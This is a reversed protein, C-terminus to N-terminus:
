ESEVVVVRAEVALDHERFVELRAGINWSLESHMGAFSPAGLNPIRFLFPCESEDEDIHQLEVRFDAERNVYETWVGQASGRERSLMEVVLRVSRGASARAIRVVGSISEGLRYVSKPLKLELQRGTDDQTKVAVGDDGRDENSCLVVLSTRAHLDFRRPLDVKVQLGYGIETLMGDFSPPLSSPLKIAFPYQHQGVALVNSDRKPKWIDYMDDLPHTRIIYEPHTGWNTFETGIAHLSIGRPHLEKEVTLIVKGRM